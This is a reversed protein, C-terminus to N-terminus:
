NELLYGVCQQVAQEAKERLASETNNAIPHAIIAFPYDPMGSVQAMVQATEVFRDTIIATATIGIKEATLADHM